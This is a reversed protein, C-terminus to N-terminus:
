QIKFGQPNQVLKSLSITAAPIPAIYNMKNPQRKLVVPEAVSRKAAIEEVRETRVLDFWRKYEGALEWGREDVISNPTASTVDVTNNPTLYPLGAARRKVQNFAGLSSSNQGVRAQAEAYILLVEAYRYLEISRLGVTKTGFLTL